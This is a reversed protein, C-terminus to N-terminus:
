GCPDIGRGLYDVEAHDRDIRHSLIEAKKAADSVRKQIEKRYEPYAALWHLQLSRYAAKLEPDGDIEPYPSGSARRAEHLRVTHRRALKLDGTQYYRV